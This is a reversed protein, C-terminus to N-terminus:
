RIHKEPHIRAPRAQIHQKWTCYRMVLLKWDRYPKVVPEVVEPEEEVITPPESVVNRSNLVDESADAAWRFLDTGVVALETADDGSGVLHPQLTKLGKEWQKKRKLMYPDSRWDKKEGLSRTTLGAASGPLKPRRIQQPAKEGKKLPCYLGSFLNGVRVM